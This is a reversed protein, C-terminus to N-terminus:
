STPVDYLLLGRLIELTVRVSPGGVEIEEVTALLVEDPNLDPDDLRVV